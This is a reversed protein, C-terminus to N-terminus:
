RTARGIMVAMINSVWSATALVISSVRFSWRVGPLGGVMATMPSEIVAPLM